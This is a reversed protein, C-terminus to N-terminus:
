AARRPRLHEFAMYAVGIAGTLFAPALLAHLGVRAFGYSGAVGGCLFGLLLVAYLGVRRRDVPHRGLWHGLAMGLDTVVGTMHTTRIVAGSYTSAMANQLGCAFAALWEGGLWAHRLAWWAALLAVSELILVVGYRRGLKLTAQGIIAASAACGAFFALVTLGAALALRLEGLALENGLMTLPGSMHALAQHHVGLLGVANVAGAIAALAFGGVLIWAPVPKSLM